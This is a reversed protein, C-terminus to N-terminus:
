GGVAQDHLDHVEFVCGSVRRTQVHHHLYGMELEREVFQLKQLECLSQSQQTYELLLLLEQRVSRLETRVFIWAPSYTDNTAQPGSQQESKSTADVRLQEM